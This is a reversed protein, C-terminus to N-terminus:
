GAGHVIETPPLLNRRAAVSWYRCWPRRRIDLIRCLGHRPCRRIQRGLRHEGAPRERRVTYGPGHHRRAALLGPDSLGASRARSHPSLTAEDRATIVISSRDIGPRTAADVPDRHARSTSPSDQPSPPLGQCRVAGSPMPERSGRGHAGRTSWRGTCRRRAAALCERASGPV